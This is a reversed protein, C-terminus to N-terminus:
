AYRTYGSARRLDLAEFLPAQQNPEQVGLPIRTICFTLCYAQM